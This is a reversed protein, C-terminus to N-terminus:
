IHVRLGLSAQRGGGQYGRVPEYSKATINETRFFAETKQTVVIKTQFNWLTYGPDRLLPAQSNFSSSRSISEMQITAKSSLQYIVIVGARFNARNPLPENAVENRARLATGSLRFSLGHYQNMYSLDAGEVRSEGLNKYRSVNLDFEIANTYHTRFFSLEYSHKNKEFSLGVEHSLSREPMLQPSGFVPDSLQYLSPVSTGIGTRWWSSVSPMFDYRFGGQISQASQTISNSDRRVGLDARLNKMLSHHAHAYVGTQKMAPPATASNNRRDFSQYEELGHMVGLKWGSQQFITGELSVEGLARRGTFDLEFPFTTTPDTEDVQYRHVSFYVLKTRLKVHSADRTIPVTTLWAGQASQKKARANQDPQYAGQDLAQALLVSQGSVASELGQDNKWGWKVAFFNEQERNLSPSAGAERRAAGEALETRGVWSFGYTSDKTGKLFHAAGKYSDEAGSRLLVRGSTEEPKPRRTTILVVGGLANPGYAVSQAGKLIEIKEIAELDLFTADFARTPDSPDMVPVGDIMVLAQNASSGRISITLVGTGEGKVELGAYQNLLTSIDSAELSEIEARSITLRAGTEKVFVRDSVVTELVEARCTGPPLIGCACALIGFYKQPIRFFIPLKLV